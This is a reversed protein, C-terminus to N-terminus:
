LPLYAFCGLFKCLSIRGYERMNMVVCHERKLVGMYLVIYTFHAFFNHSVYASRYDTKDSICTIVFIPPKLLKTLLTTKSVGLSM